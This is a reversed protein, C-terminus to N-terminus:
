NHMTVTQTTLPAARYTTNGPQHAKITCTGPHNFDITGDAITCHGSATFTVTLGSDSTATPTYTDGITADAPASTTFTITQPTKTVTIEQIAPTAATYTTNGRQTAKLYCTGAATFTVTGDTRTCAGSATITVALGSSTTAGPEYTDGVHAGTPAITGFELSQALKTVTIAQTQTSAPRYTTNGNQHAQVTCTGARNLHVTGDTITCPGSTTFTTPLGSTSLAAPVYTDGVHAGDPATSTFAVSQATRTVSIKQTVAPAAAFTSNGPQHAKIYCTGAGTFTVTGDALTCKGSVTFSVPLASSSLAAPVYTDGVKADEPATSTFALNQSQKAVNFVQTIPAAPEYSTGDGKQSATLVCTGAATFTVTGGAVTCRGSAALSATLNATSSVTPTYTGAIVADAPAPTTFALTQTDWGHLTVSKPGTGLLTSLDTSDAVESKPTAAQDYWGEFQADPGDPLTTGADAFTAAYVHTTSPATGTLTGIDYSVAYSHDTVDVSSDVTVTHKITGTNNLTDSGTISGQGEITGSNWSTGGLINLNSGSPLILTAHTMFGVSQNPSGTSSAGSGIASAGAGGAATVTGGDLYIENVSIGNKGTGIAAGGASGGTATITGGEILINDTLPAGPGTGIGAAEDAGTATITGGDIEILHVTGTAGGGGIGSGGSESDGGVATITGGDITIAGTAGDDADDSGGIGASEDGGAAHLTGGTATDEIELSANSPVYIAAADTDTADISLSHGDLDLTIAGGAPVALNEDTANAMPTTNGLTITTPTTGANSFANQLDTWTTVTVSADAHAPAAILGALGVALTLGLGSIAARAPNTRLM